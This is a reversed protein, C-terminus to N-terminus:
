VARREKAPAAARAESAREWAASEGLFALEAGAPEPAMRWDTQLHHKLSMGSSVNEAAAFSIPRSDTSSRAGSSKGVNFFYPRVHAMTVLGLPLVGCPTVTPGM